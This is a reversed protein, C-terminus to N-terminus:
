WGYREPGWPKTILEQKALLLTRDPVDEYIIAGPGLCSYCGVRVGPMIITNVGTRSYDGIFACNAGHVREKRGKVMIEAAGDDFRLTGCVTAAGVDVKSGLVGAMECYHYLCVGDFLVGDFEAGHGLVCHDGVVGDGVQCYSFVRCGRGLWLSRVIAGDTVTSDPGVYVDGELVVRPGIRAGEALVVRGRIDASDHIEAGKGVTPQEQVLREFLYKAVGHSARLIHWPKDLDFCFHTAEVAQVKRGEESMMHVSQAIEAEYPPMGGVPVTKLIGPNRRLYSFAQQAFVYVGALRASKPGRRHALVGEVVGNHDLVSMWQGTEEGQPFATLCAADAQAEAFGNVLARLDEEACLVDGHAVLVPGEGEVAKLGSLAAAATGSGSQDAFAVQPLDGLAHYISEKREGVVAVIQEFGLRILAEATHRVAPKNVIPIACKNRVQNYPWM